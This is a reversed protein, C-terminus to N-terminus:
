PMPGGDKGGLGVLAARPCDEETNETNLITILQRLKAQRGVFGKNRGFPLVRLPGSYEGSTVPVQTATTLAKLGSISPMDQPSHYIDAVHSRMFQMLVGLIARYRPGSQRPM